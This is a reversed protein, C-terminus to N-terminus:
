SVTSEFRCRRRWRPAPQAPMAPQVFFVSVVADLDEPIFAGCTFIASTGPPAWGYKWGHFVAPALALVSKLRPSTVNLSVEPQSWVLCFSTSVDSAAWPYLENPMKPTAGSFMLVVNSLRFFCPNWTADSADQGAPSVSSASKQRDVSTCCAAYLAAFAAISAMPPLPLRTCRVPLLTSELVCRRMAPTCCATSSVLPLTLSSSVTVSM